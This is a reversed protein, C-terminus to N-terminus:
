LAGKNIPSQHHARVFNLVFRIANIDPTYLVGEPMESPSCWLFTPPRETRWVLGEKAAREPLWKTSFDVLENLDPLGIWIHIEPLLGRKLAAQSEPRWPSWEYSFHTPQQGDDLHPPLISWSMSGAQLLARYGLSLLVSVGTMSWYLCAGGQMHDQGYWDQYRRCVTHYVKHRVM